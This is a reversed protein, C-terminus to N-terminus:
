GSNTQALGEAQGGQDGRHPEAVVGEGVGDGGEGGSARGPAGSRSWQEGAHAVPPDGEVREGAVGDGDHEPGAGAGGAQGGLPDGGVREAGPVGGLGGQGADADVPDGGLGAM